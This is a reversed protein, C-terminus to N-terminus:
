KLITVKLYKAIIELLGIPSSDWEKYEEDTLTYTNFLINQKESCLVWNATCNGMLDDTYNFVGITNIIVSTQPIGTTYEFSVLPATIFEM